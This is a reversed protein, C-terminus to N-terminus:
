EAEHHPRLTCVRQNPDRGARFVLRETTYELNRRVTDTYATLRRELARLSALSLVESPTSTGRAVRALEDHDPLLQTCEPPLVGATETGLRDPLLVATVSLDIRARIVRRWHMVRTMEDRLIRYVEHLDDTSTDQTASATGPM